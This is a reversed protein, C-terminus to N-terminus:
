LDADRRPVQSTYGQLEKARYLATTNKWSPASLNSSLNEKTIDFFCGGQM